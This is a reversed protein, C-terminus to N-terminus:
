HICTHTYSIEIDSQQYEYRDALFLHSSVVKQCKVSMYPKFLIRSTLKKYAMGFRNHKYLTHIYLHIPNALFDVKSYLYLYRPYTLNRFEFKISQLRQWSTAFIKLIRACAYMYTFIIWIYLKTVTNVACFLKWEFNVECALNKLVFFVCLIFILWKFITSKCSNWFEFHM